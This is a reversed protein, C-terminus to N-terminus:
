VYGYREKHEKLYKTRISKSEMFTKLANSQTQLLNLIATDDNNDDCKFSIKQKDTNKFGRIGGYGSRVNYEQQHLDPIKSISPLNDLSIPINTSIMNSEPIFTEEKIKKRYLLIIILISVIFFIVAYKYKYLLLIITLIISLRTLANFQQSITMDSNPFINFNNFLVNINDIWFEDKM